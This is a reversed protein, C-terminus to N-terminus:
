YKRSLRLQGSDQEVRFQKLVNMGLLPQSLHPVVMAQVHLLTFHGFKLKQITASCAQAEGNVTQVLTSGQCRVGASSATASPLTVFTAGNDIAFNLSRDNVTGDVFYHGGNGEGIVLTKNETTPSAEAHEVAPSSPWSSLAQEDTTCPVEQYHM